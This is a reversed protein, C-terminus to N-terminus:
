GCFEYDCNGPIHKDVIFKNLVDRIEGTISGREKRITKIAKVMKSKEYRTKLQRHFDVYEFAEKQTATHGILAAAFRIRYLHNDVSEVEHDLSQYMGEVVADFICDSFWTSPGLYETSDPKNMPKNTVKAAERDISRLLKSRRYLEEGGIMKWKLIGREKDNVLWSYASSDLHQVLYNRLIKTDGTNNRNLGYSLDRDSLLEIQPAISSKADPPQPTKRDPRKSDALSRIFSASLNPKLDNMLQRALTLMGKQHERHLTPEVEGFSKLTKKKHEPYDKRYYELIDDPTLRAANVLETPHIDKGSLVKNVINQLKDMTFLAAVEDFPAGRLWKEAISITTGSIKLITAVDGYTIDLTRLIAILRTQEWSSPTDM